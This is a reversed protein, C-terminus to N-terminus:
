EATAQTLLDRNRTKISEFAKDDLRDVCVPPTALSRADFQLTATGGTLFTSATTMGNSRSM